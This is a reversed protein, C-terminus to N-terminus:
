KKHKTKNVTWRERIARAVDPVIYYVRGGKTLQVFPIKGENRWNIITRHSPRTAKKLWVAKLMVAEDVLKLEDTQGSESQSKTQM